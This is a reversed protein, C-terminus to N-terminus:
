DDREDGTRYRPPVFGKPIAWQEVRDEWRQREAMWQGRKGLESQQQQQLALSTDIKTYIGGLFFLATCMGPIFILIQGLVVKTVWNKIDSKVVSDRETIFEKLDQSIIERQVDSTSAM